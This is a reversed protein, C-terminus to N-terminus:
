RERTWWKRSLIHRCVGLRARSEISPADITQLVNSSWDLCGVVTDQGEWPNGVMNGERVCGYAAAQAEMIEEPCMVMTIVRTGVDKRLARGRRLGLIITSSTPYLDTSHLGTHKHTDDGFNGLESM